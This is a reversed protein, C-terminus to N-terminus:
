HRENMIELLQIDFWGMEGDSWLVEASQTDRGTRSMKMVVGWGAERLEPPRGDNLVSEWKVLDGIKM